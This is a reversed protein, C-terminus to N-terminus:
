KYYDYLLCIIFMYYFSQQKQQKATRAKITNSQYKMQPELHKNIEHQTKSSSKALHKQRRAEKTCEVYKM